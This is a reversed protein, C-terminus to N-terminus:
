KTELHGTEIRGRTKRGRVKSIFAGGAFLATAYILQAAGFSAVAIAALTVAVLIGFIRRGGPFLVLYAVACMLYLLFFNKGAVELMAGIEITALQSIIIVLSFGVACAVVSRRPVYDKSLKALAGPLLGERSSSLVLRSAAWGAGVLNAFIIVVGFISIVAALRPDLLGAIAQVPATATEEGDRPLASQIGWALLFYMATVLVFSLAVVRPFDRKPNAYEETTFSIMEWGSFAFFVIGIGLLASNLTESSLHPIVAEPGELTLAVVGLAILVVTLVIALVVQIRTSFKVGVYVVLGASLMLAVAIVSSPVNALLPMSTAYAGGTLAIAPLGLGFTGLLLVETGAAAKRGFAQHLFGAVGGAGPFLSGLRAFIFLLPVTILAALFWSMLASEGAQAYAVGPLVLAGSGVVTTVALATAGPLRLHGQLRETNVSDVSM